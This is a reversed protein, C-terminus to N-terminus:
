SKIARKFKIKTDGFEDKQTGILNNGDNSLIFSLKDLQYREENGKNIFIFHKGNLQFRKSSIVEDFIELVETIKHKYSYQIFMSASIYEKKILQISLLVNHHRGRLKFSGEWFGSINPPTAHTDQEFIKPPLPPFCFDRIPQIGRLCDNLFYNNILLERVLQQLSITLELEWNPNKIDYYLYFLSKLDFPVDNDDRTLIIAPKGIAHALGIEYLVNPNKTTLEAIIFRSSRILNWIDDVIRQKTFLEDARICSIELEEIAPKIINYYETEFQTSFPMIVFCYNDLDELTIQIINSNKGM